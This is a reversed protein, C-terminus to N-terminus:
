NIMDIIKKGSIKPPLKINARDEIYSNFNKYTNIKDIINGLKFKICLDVMIYLDEERIDESIDKYFELIEKNQKNGLLITRFIDLLLHYINFYLKKNEVDDFRYNNTIKNWRKVNTWLISTHYTDAYRFIYTAYYSIYIHIHKKINSYDKQVQYWNLINSWTQIPITVDYIKSFNIISQKFGLWFLEFEKDPFNNELISRIENNFCESM